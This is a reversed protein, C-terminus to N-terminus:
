LCTKKILSTYLPPVPNEGTEGRGRSTRGAPDWELFYVKNQM